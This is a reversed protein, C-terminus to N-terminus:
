APNFLWSRVTLLSGFKEQCYFTLSGSAAANNLEIRRGQYWIPLEVSSWVITGQATTTSLRWYSIGFFRRTDAPYDPFQLLAIQNPVILNGVNVASGPSVQTQGQYVWSPM